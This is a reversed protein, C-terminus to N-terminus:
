AVRPRVDQEIQPRVTRDAVELDHRTQLNIWFVATTGFYRALRLATDTSIGRRGRVIDNARSRPIRLAKALEYASLGLPELFESRLVDGPHVPPLRDNSAVDSLDVRGRDLDERRITM